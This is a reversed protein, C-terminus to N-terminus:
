HTQLESNNIARSQEAQTKLVYNMNLLNKGESSLALLLSPRSSINCSAPVPCLSPPPAEQPASREPGRARDRLLHVRPGVPTGARRTRRFSRSSGPQIRFSVIGSYERSPSINFSFSWYKPWRIRLASENPFVRISPFISPQHLLPPCLILHSSPM